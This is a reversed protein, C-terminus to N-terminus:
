RGTSAQRAFAAIDANFRATAEIFASHGVGEYVVGRGGHEGLLKALAAGPVTVDKEGAISLMPVTDLQPTLDVNDLRIGSMANRVYPPLMMATAVGLEVADEPEPRASMVKMFQKSGQLLLRLDDPTRPPASANRPLLGGTSSVLAIGAVADRGYERLYHMAVYGGFSWGVVLPKKLGLQTVVAHVDDGWPKSGAYSAPTWPKGSAGHGRLDIAVLRYTRALLPDAFQPLFSLSSQSYGHLLVIPPGDANGGEVAVLPVGDPATVTHFKLPVAVAPGSAAPAAASTPVAESTAASAASPAVALTLATFSALALASARLALARPAHLSRIM